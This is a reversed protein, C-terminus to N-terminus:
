SNKGGARGRLEASELAARWLLTLTRRLMARQDASLNIYSKFLSKAKKLKEYTLDTLTKAGTAYLADFLADTFGRRTQEDVSDVWLKLARDLRRSHATTSDLHVFGKGDVEWTLPDHQVPGSAASRVVEYEEEHELLMGVISSQPVITVIRGRVRMYEERQLMSSKFGPGDNNYVAAIRSQIRKKCFTAAYVALNGGKSHGGVRVVARLGRGARNLYEVAATQAPVASMFSMNFNEKWGALTDDTGRYAIYRSGDDLTICLASFQEAERESVTKVYDSLLAGGFRRTAAALHILPLIEGSILLGMREKESNVAFFDASAKALTVSRGSKPEPLFGSWDPCVLKCLVLSDVENFPMEAFSFGGYQRVYDPANRM